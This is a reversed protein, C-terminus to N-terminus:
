LFIFVEESFPQFVRTTGIGLLGPVAKPAKSFPTIGEQLTSQSEEAGLWLISDGSDSAQRPEERGEMFSFIVTTVSVEQTRWPRKPTRGEAHLRKLIRARAHRAGGGGAAGHCCNVKGFPNRAGKERWECDTPHGKARKKEKKVFVTM